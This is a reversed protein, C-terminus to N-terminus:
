EQVPPRDVQRDAQESTLTASQRIEAAVKLWGESLALMREESMGDIGNVANNMWEIASGLAEAYTM